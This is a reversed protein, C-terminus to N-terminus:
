DTEMHGVEKALEPDRLLSMNMCYFRYFEEAYVLGDATTAVNLLIPAHDSTVVGPLIGYEVIRSCFQHHVYFRDIRSCALDAGTQNNTRSYRLSDVWRAAPVADWPDEVQLIHDRLHLWEASCSIQSAQCVGLRDMASEVFNKDGGLIWPVDLDLSQSIREWLEKRGRDSQPGYINCLGVHGLKTDLIAWQYWFQRTPAINRARQRATPPPTWGVQDHGSSLVKAEMRPHFFMALGGHSRSTFVWKGEGEMLPVMRKKLKAETMKTEQLFAVDWTCKNAFFDKVRRWKKDASLGGVNGSVVQFQQTRDFRYQLVSDSMTM